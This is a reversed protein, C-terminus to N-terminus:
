SASCTNLLGPLNLGKFLVFLHRVSERFTPISIQGFILRLWSARTSTTPRFLPIASRAPQYRSFTKPYPRALFLKPPIHDVSSARPQGCYACLKAEEKATMSLNLDSCVWIESQSLRTLPSVNQLTPHM